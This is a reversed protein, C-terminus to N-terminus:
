YYHREYEPAGSGIIRKDTEKPIFWLKKHVLNAVYESGKKLSVYGITSFVGPLKTNDVMVPLIYEGGAQNLTREQSSRREHNTWARPVCKDKKNKTASEKLLCTSEDVSSWM